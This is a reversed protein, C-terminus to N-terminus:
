RNPLRNRFHEEEVKKKLNLEQKIVTSTLAQQRYSDPDRRYEEVYAKWGSNKLKEDLKDFKEYELLVKGAIENKDAVSEQCIKRLKIITMKDLDVNNNILHLWVARQNKVAQEQEKQRVEEKQNIDISRIIKLHYSIDDIHERRM